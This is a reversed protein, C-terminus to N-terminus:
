VFIFMDLIDVYDISALFMARLYVILRILSCKGKRRAERMAGLLRLAATWEGAQTKSNRNSNNDNNDDNDNDNDNRLWWSGGPSTAVANSKM